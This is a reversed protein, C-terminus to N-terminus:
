FHQRDGSSDLFRVQLNVVEYLAEAGATYMFHQLPTPRYDTYVIHCPQRHM